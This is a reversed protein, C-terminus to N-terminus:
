CSCTFGGENIDELKKGTVVEYHKWFEDRLDYWVDRIHEGNNIYDGTVLASHEHMLEDYSCGLRVAAARLWAESASKDDQKVVSSFAPHQWEHRMGTVAKPYIFLWFKEGKLVRGKLFPDVVGILEDADFGVASREDDIFGVHDGPALAIGAVVPAVAVHIADRQQEGEILCGLKLESHM